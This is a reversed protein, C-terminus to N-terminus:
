INPYEPMQDTYLRDFHDIMNRLEPNSMQQILGDILNETRGQLRVMHDLIGILDGTNRSDKVQQRIGQMDHVRAIYQIAEELSERGMAKAIERLVQDAEPLFRRMDQFIEYLHDFSRANEARQRFTDGGMERLLKKTVVRAAEEIKEPDANDWWRNGSPNMEDPSRLGSRHEISTQPEERLTEYEEAVIQKIAEHADNASENKYWQDSDGTHDERSKMRDKRNRSALDQEVDEAQRLIKSMEEQIVTRLSSM